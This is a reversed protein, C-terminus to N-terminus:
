VGINTTIIGVVFANVVKLWNLKKLTDYIKSEVDDSDVDISESSMTEIQNVLFQLYEEYSSNILFPNKRSKEYLKKIVYKKSKLEVSNPFGVLIVKKKDEM